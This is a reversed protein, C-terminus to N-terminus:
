IIQFQQYLLERVQYYEDSLIGDIQISSNGDVEERWIYILTTKMSVAIIGQDFQVQYGSDILLQKFESLKIDGIFSSNHPEIEEEALLELVPPAKMNTENLIVKAQIYAIDYDMLKSSALSSILSDKLVVNYVNTESTLDITQNIIPKYLGKVRMNQKVHTELEAICDQNGRVLILKSPAIKQIITKISKGDSCGEYEIYQVSCKLDVTLTEKVIKKPTEEIKEDVEDLQEMEQDEQNLKRAIELLEDDQEGYEDVKFVKEIFPFMPQMGEMAFQDRTLDYRNSGFPNKKFTIDIIKDDLIDPELVMQNLAEEEQKLKEAAAREEEKQRQREEEYARLEEGELEVRRGLELTVSEPQDNLLHSALTGEEVSDTMLILNKSDAAWKIFLERAYGSELDKGSALVVYNSSLGMLNELDYISHCLKINKFAFINENRQEFKLGAATSMFELQSKAFECVNYTVNNLFIVTYAGSLRQQAWHSEISQLLELSRGATDVPLLVNGGERLTKLLTSYLAKDKEIRKLATPPTRAHRADTILHTPKLLDQGQLVPFFGELHGEKRHNFDIAYIITDTEKTIKWVSGGIMHGASYPTITITASSPTTLTYHQSFSLEKFRKKDFCLDVDDLDFRDFDEQAMHNSYLDYLFMQGMKFIPTTGYITGTLGLKSVAYPLAGLHEIDPYSLLIADIKNAVAKLPELISLDLSHNWGCDLLITFEDIELLYCPPSIENAGGSLPTFKIISTM